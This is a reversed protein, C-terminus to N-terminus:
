NKFQYCKEFKHTFYITFHSLVGRASFHGSKSTSDILLEKASCM